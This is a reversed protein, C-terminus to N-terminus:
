REGEQAKAEAPLRRLITDATFYELWRRERTATAWENPKTGYVRDIDRISGLRDEMDQCLQKAADPIERMAAVPRAVFAADVLGRWAWDGPAVYLPNRLSPRPLEM